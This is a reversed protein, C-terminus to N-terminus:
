FLVVRSFRILITHVKVDGRIDALGEFTGATLVLRDGDNLSEFGKSLTLFPSSESGDNKDDGTPSVFYNSSKFKASADIDTNITATTSSTFSTRSAIRM